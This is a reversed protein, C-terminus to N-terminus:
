LWRRVRRRYELYRDGFAAAAAREEFPIYWWNAATFFLAPALLGCWRDALLAAGTVVLIMSLYMPNRSIAFLGDTVLNRPTDFTMIESQSRAFQLRSGVLGAIGIAILVGALWPPSAMSYAMSSHLVHLAALAALLLLLLVPPLLRHMALEMFHYFNFIIM